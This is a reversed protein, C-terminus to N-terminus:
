SIPELTPKVKFSGGVVREMLNSQIQQDDKKQAAEPYATLLADIADEPAKFVIAAHIPLLRWRMSGDKGKRVIFVRAEDPHTQTRAIVEKWLKKQVLAYLVTPNKSFEREEEIEPEEEHTSPASVAEAVNETTM